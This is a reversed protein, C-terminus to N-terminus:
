ISSEGFMILGNKEKIRDIDTKLKEIEKFKHIQQETNNVITERENGEPLPILVHTLLAQRGAPTNRIDNFFQEGNKSFFFSFINFSLEKRQQQDKVRLITFFPSAICSPSIEDLIIGARIKSPHRIPILIDYPKLFGDRSSLYNLDRESLTVLSTTETVRVYGFKNIDQSKIVHFPESVKEETNRKGISRLPILCKIEVLDTLQVQKM